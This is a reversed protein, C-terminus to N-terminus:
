RRAEPAPHRYVLVPENEPVTDAHHFIAGLREALRISRRNDPHIVSYAERWGAIGFAYRRAAMAAEFAYGHGELEPPAIWWAIERAIWGEPDDLGVQGVYSGTATVEVGWMGYGRLEWHGLTGALARWAEIRSRPGGIYRARDSALFAAVAEFDEVRPARLTLRETTLVPVM